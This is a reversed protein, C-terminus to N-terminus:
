IPDPGPGGGGGDDPPVPCTEGTYDPFGYPVECPHVAVVKPAPSYSWTWKETTTHGDRFTMYRFVDITFGPQAASKTIEQGPLLSENAEYVIRDTTYYGRRESAGATVVLGDNDGWIKVTISTGYYGSHHTTILVPKDTDNRFAVDPHPWGMTAERGDPYRSFDLSHPQHEVDELGAFFAANYITTGFQSTGGGVNAPDDCCQVWGDIIAGAALYGKAATREGVTANVSFTEGPMVVHGHVADAMTQINVVRNECCNHYTTFQGLLYSGQFAMAEAETLYRRIGTAWTGRKATDVVDEEGSDPGGDMRDASPFESRFLFDSGAEGALDDSGPGGHLVDNGDGGRLLDRGLGGGLADAGPGGALDDAESGGLLADDGDEGLLADAGANGSLSDDDPGGELRDVGPGGFLSDGGAGGRLVDDGPEGYLTDDGDDGSVTDNGRGARATDRGPGGVVTDGGTGGALSDDGWGGDLSDDGSGGLLTDNGSEGQLTDDGGDGYLTDNGRGGVITDGGGGGCVLDDGGLADIADPGRTGLIVDPGGTGVVPPALHLVPLDITVPLGGCFPVVSATFGGSATGGEGDDVVVSVPYSGRAAYAHSLTALGGVVGGVLDSAGDGWDVAVSHTDTSGPDTFHVVLEFPAGLPASAEPLPDLAPPANLVTITVGQSVGTPGVAVRVRVEYVGEDGFAHSQAVTYPPAGPAELTVTTDDGWDVRFRDPTGAAADFTATLLAPSGELVPGAPPTLTLSSAAVATGPVAAITAAVLVVLSLPILRRM